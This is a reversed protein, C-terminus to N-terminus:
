IPNLFKNRITTNDRHRCHSFPVDRPVYISQIYPNFFSAFTAVNSTTHIFYDCRSLLLCDMLAGLGGKYGPKAKHWETVHSMWYAPQEYILGPDELNKARHTDIYVLRSGYKQKFFNIVAHSDTALFIIVNENQHKNLLNNVEIWYDNIAPHGGPAEHAHAQAYRVHVGICLANKMHKEYFAEVQDVIRQQIRIHKKIKEHAFKRYSLYEDYLLWPAVCLQDHLEHALTSGVNYVPENINNHVDLQIPEFYLDWGNEYPANKFPFFQNTWDVFMSQIGDQEYYILDVLVNGLECFFGGGIHSAQTINVSRKIIKEFQCSSTVDVLGACTQACFILAIINNKMSDGKMMDFLM